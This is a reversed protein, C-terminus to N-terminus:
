VAKQFHPMIGGYGGYGHGPSENGGPTCHKAHCDSCRGNTCRNTIGAVTSRTNRGCANCLGLDRCAECGGAHPYGAVYQEPEGNPFRRRYEDPTLFSHHDRRAEHMASHNAKGGNGHVVKGCSCHYSRRAHQRAKETSTMTVLDGGGM